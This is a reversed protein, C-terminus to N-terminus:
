FGGFLEDLIMQENTRNTPAPNQETWLYAAFAQDEASLMSVPVQVIRLDSQRRVKLHTETADLVEAQMSRELTDTLTILQQKARQAHQESSPPPSAPGPLATAEAPLAEKEIEAEAM